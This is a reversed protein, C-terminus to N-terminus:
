EVSISGKMGFATHMFHTCKVKYTGAAPVLRVDRIEGKKLEIRSKSLADVSAPDIRAAAFFEPAAFNHGGSGRNIFRLVYAQGHHLRLTAPTFAFNSLVVDVQMVQDRSPGSPAAAVAVALLAGLVVGTVRMEM